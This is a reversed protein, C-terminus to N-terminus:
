CGRFELQQEAACLDYMDGEFLFVSKDSEFERLPVLVGLTLYNPNSAAFTRYTKYLTLVRAQLDPASYITILGTEALIYALYDIGSLKLGWGLKAEGEGVYAQSVIEYAMNGTSHGIFDIKVQMSMKDPNYIWLDVGALDEARTACEVREVTSRNLLWFNFAEFIREQKEVQEKFDYM